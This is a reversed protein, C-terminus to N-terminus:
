HCFTINASLADNESLVDRVRVALGVSRPFGVHALDSRDNVASRRGHM